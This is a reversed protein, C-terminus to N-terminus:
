LSQSTLFKKKWLTSIRQRALRDTMFYDVKRAADAQSVDSGLEMRPFLLAYM